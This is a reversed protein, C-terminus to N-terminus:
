QLQYQFRGTQAVRRGYGPHQGTECRSAARRPPAAYDLARALKAGLWCVAEPWSARALWARTSSESPRSEGRRELSEDIVDLLLKGTREEPPTRRVRQIVAQLTGGAIYQMYLLRLKRDPMTRQDYVRVIHDHDLQALTQPEDSRDTAVKLAVLRQM